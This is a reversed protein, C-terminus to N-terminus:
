VNAPDKWRVVTPVARLDGPGDDLHFNTVLAEHWQAEHWMTLDDQKWHRAGKMCLAYVVAGERRATTLLVSGCTKEGHKDRM